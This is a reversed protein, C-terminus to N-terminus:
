FLEIRWGGHFPLAAGPHRVLLLPCPLMRGFEPCYWGNDLEVRGAGSRTIGALLLEGDRVLVEGQVMEVQLAPNLHLRLEIHHTGAGAVEDDIAIEAGRWTVSRRHVPNGLLRRYGDHAGAFCLSGDDLLQLSAGLPRARHAVRHAGWVESQNAADVTLTNHGANGRNYRRMAGEPYTGCGSDVVIRRGRHSLEFSLTDCHAHGPQYDPGVAGCDIILRSGPAPAMVYYGAEPLQWLLAVPLTAELGTLRRYYRALAQPSAEIGFAADNFLAIEGDPHSMKLLADLMSRCVAPLRAGLVAHAGQTQTRCLNLLDLCDNLIMAHYMPSREFHLGDPLLQQELQSDLRKLGKSLLRKADSGTFYTGAFILAVLNKFYHNALIHLELNRELWLVQTHLSELWRPKGGVALDTRLFFKIWNVIRLSLTFPEWADPTGPPNACIWDDILGSCTEPSRSGDHLYDFYHLNYRWLKSQDASRWDVGQGDFDRTVNLFTFQWQGGCPAVRDLPPLLELGPRVGFPRSGPSRKLRCVRRLLQFWIQSPKLYRVTHLYLSLRAPIL